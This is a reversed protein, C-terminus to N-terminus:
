LFHQMAMENARNIVLFYEEHQMRDYEEDIVTRVFRKGKNSLERYKTIADKEEASLEQGYTTLVMQDKLYDEFLYNADIKLAM